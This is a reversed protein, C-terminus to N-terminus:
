LYLAERGCNKTSIGERRVSNERERERSIKRKRHEDNEQELESHSGELTLFLKNNGNYGPFRVSVYERLVRLSLSDIKLFDYM